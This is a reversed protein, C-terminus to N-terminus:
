ATINKTEQQDTIDIVSDKKNKNYNNIFREKNKKANIQYVWLWTLTFTPMFDTLPFLEEIFVMSGGIIGTLGRYMAFFSAAAIPAWALDGAEGIAPFLYTAIGLLDFLIGVLLRNRKQKEFEALVVTNSM